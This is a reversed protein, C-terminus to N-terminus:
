LCRSRADFPDRSADAAAVPFTSRRSQGNFAPPAYHFRAIACHLDQTDFNVPPLQPHSSPYLSGITEATRHTHTHTKPNAHQNAFINSFWRTSSLTSEPPRSSPINSSIKRDLARQNIIPLKNPFEEPSRLSIAPPDSNTYIRLHTPNFNRRAIDPQKWKTPHTIFSYANSQLYSTRKIIALTSTILNMGILPKSIRRVTGM